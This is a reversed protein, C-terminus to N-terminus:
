DKKFHAKGRDDRWEERGENWFGLIERGPLNDFGNGNETTVQYLVRILFTFFTTQCQISRRYFSFGQMIHVISQDSIYKIPWIIAKLFPVM